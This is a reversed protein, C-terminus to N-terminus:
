RCRALDRRVTRSHPRAALRRELLSRAAAFRGDRIAAEILTLPLLDRQAHSGGMQPWDPEAAALRDFAEGHRGEAFARMALAIPLGGRRTMAARRYSGGAAAGLTAVLRDAAEAEGTAAFALMAHVDNFAHRADAAHPVLRRAVEPMRGGTDAGALMLRWLLAAADCLNLVIAGDGPRVFRDYVALAGDPDEVEIHYLALHWANHVTFFSGEQWSAAHEAYWRQGDEARGQEELVHAVAHLAYGDDPAAAVAARGAAEAEAFRGNEELGFALMGTVASHGPLDAPWDALSRQPRALLAATGATFFDGQHAFFLAVLDRPAARLAQDLRDLGGDLDGAMWRRLGDLHLRERDNLPLAAAADLSAAADADFDPQMAFALMAAKLLHAVALTPDRALAADAAAFPDGRFAAMAMLAQELQALAQPDSGSWTVGRPDVLVM